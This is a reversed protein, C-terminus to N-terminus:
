NHALDIFIMHYINQHIGVKRVAADRHRKQPLIQINETQLLLLMLHHQPSVSTEQCLWQHLTKISEEQENLNM